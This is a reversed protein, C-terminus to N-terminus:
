SRTLCTTDKQIDQHRKADRARRSGARARPLRLFAPLRHAKVGSQGGPSPTRITYVAIARPYERLAADELNSAPTSNALKKRIYNGSHAFSQGDSRKVPLFVGIM